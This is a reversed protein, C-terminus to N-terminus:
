DEETEYGFYFKNGREDYVPVGIDDAKGIYINEGVRVNVPGLQIPVKAREAIGSVELGDKRDSSAEELNPSKESPTWGGFGLFGKRRYKKGDKIKIRRFRSDYGQFEGSIKELEDMFGAIIYDNM